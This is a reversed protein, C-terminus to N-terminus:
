SPDLLRGLFLISETGRDYVAYYFPRDFRVEWPDLPASDPTEFVVATAAAAETGEEDISVFTKHLIDSIFLSRGPICPGAGTIAEFQAACVDFAEEMGMAKFVDVLSFDGESEFRPLYLQGEELFRVGEAVEDFRERTLAAEWAEFDATEDSAMFAIMSVMDGVYPMAVAVTDDNEFFGFRASQRMLAVDVTSGDLRYFPENQTHDPNFSNRWSGYFYIANVLVFRTLQNLIGEALLNQIRDNTRAAVWDNIGVRVEEYDTEFDVVRMGAGFHSALINLYDQQFDFDDHGWTQNVIELEFADGDDEELDLESRKALELDLANFGSHLQQDDLTFRLAQAMEIKTNNVAGAYAMALAVSISHPSLFINEGALEPDERLGEFLAFAFDRNDATLQALTAEDVQPDLDRTTSGQLLVGPPEIEGGPEHQNDGQNQQPDQQNEPSGPATSTCGALALTSVLLTILLFPRYSM